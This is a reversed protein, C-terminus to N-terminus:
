TGYQNLHYKLHIQTNKHNTLLKDQLPHFDLFTKFPLLLDDGYFYLLTMMINLVIELNVIVDQHHM